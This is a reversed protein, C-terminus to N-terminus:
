VDVKDSTEIIAVRIGFIYYRKYAAYTQDGYELYTLRCSLPTYFRAMRKKALDGKPLYKKILRM